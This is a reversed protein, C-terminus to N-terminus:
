HQNRENNEGDERYSHVVCAKEDRLNIYSKKLEAYMEDLKKGIDLAPEHESSVALNRFPTELTNDTIALTLLYDM